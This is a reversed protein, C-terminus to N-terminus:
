TIIRPSEAASEPLLLGASTPVTVDELPASALSLSIGDAILGRTAQGPGLVITDTGNVTLRVAVQSGPVVQIILLAAPKEEVQQGQEGEVTEM